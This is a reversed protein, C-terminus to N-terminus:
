GHGWDTFLDTPHEVDDFEMDKPQRLLIWMSKGLSFVEAGKSIEIEMDPVRGLRVLHSRLRLRRGHQQAKPRQTQDIQADLRNIVSRRLLGPCGM